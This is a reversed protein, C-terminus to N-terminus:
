NILGNQFLNISGKICNGSAFVILSAVNIVSSMHEDWWSFAKDFISMNWKKIEFIFMFWTFFLILLVALIDVM